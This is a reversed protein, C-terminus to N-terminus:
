YALIFRNYDCVRYSCNASTLTVIATENRLTLNHRHLVKSFDATAPVAQKYAEPNKANAQLCRRMGCCCTVCCADYSCAVVAMAHLKPLLWYTAKEVCLDASRKCLLVYASVVARVRVFRVYYLTYIQKSYRYGIAATLILASFFGVYCMHRLAHLNKALCAPLAVVLCGVLIWNEERM